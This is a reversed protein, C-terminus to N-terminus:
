SFAIDLTARTSWDSKKDVSWRQDNADRAHVMAQFLGPAQRRVSSYPRAVLRNLSVGRSCKRRAGIAGNGAWPDERGDTEISTSRRKRSNAISLGCSGAGENEKRRDSGGGGGCSSLPVVVIVLVSRSRQDRTFSRNRASTPSSMKELQNARMSRSPM